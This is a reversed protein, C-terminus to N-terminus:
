VTDSGSLAAPWHVTRWAYLGWLLLSPGITAALVLFSADVGGEGMWPLGIAPLLFLSGVIIALWSKGRVRFTAAAHGGNLLAAAMGFVVIRGSLNRSHDDIGMWLMLLGLVLLVATVLMYAYFLPRRMNAALDAAQWSPIIKQM